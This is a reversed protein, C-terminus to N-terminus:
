PRKLLLLIQPSIYPEEKAFSAGLKTAREYLRRANSVLGNRADPSATLSQAAQSCAAYFILRASARDTELVAGATSEVKRYEGLLLSKLTDRELRVQDRRTEILRRLRQTEVAVPAVRALFDGVRTASALDNELVRREGVKAANERVQTALTKAFDAGGPLAAARRTSEWARQFDGAQLREAVENSVKQLEAGSGAKAVVPPVTVPPEPPPLPPPSVTGPPTDLPTTKIDPLRVVGDSKQQTPPSATEGVPPSGRSPTVDAVKPAERGKEALSRQEALNAYERDNPKVLGANEVSKFRAIAEDFRKEKVSILALYYEPLYDKFVMGQFRKRRGQKADLRLAREFMQRAVAWNGAEFAKLGREYADYFLDQACVGVAWAFLVGVVLVARPCGKVARRVDSM